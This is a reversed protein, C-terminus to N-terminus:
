TLHEQARMTTAHYVVPGAVGIVRSLDFAGGLNNLVESVELEPKLSLGSIAFFTGLCPHKVVWRGM